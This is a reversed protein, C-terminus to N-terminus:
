GSMAETVIFFVVEPPSFGYGDPLSMSHYTSSPKGIAYYRIEDFDYTTPAYVYDRDATTFGCYPVVPGGYDDCQASSNIDCQILLNSPDSDVFAILTYLTNGRVSIGLMENPPGNVISYTHDVQTSGYRYSVINEQEGGASESQVYLNDAADVAMTTAFGAPHYEAITRGLNHTYEFVSSDYSQDYVIAYVHGRSDTVVDVPGGSKFRKEAAKNGAADFAIIAPRQTSADAVYLYSPVAAHEAHAAHASTQPMAGPGGIPPQSGGCGALMAAAVCAGLAYRGFGSIMM